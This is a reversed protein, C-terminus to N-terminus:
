ALDLGRVIDPDATDRSQALAHSENSVFRQVCLQFILTFPEMLMRSQGNSFLILTSWFDCRRFTFGERQELAHAPAAVYGHDRGDFVSVIECNEFLAEGCGFIFDVSGEIRCNTFRQRLLRNQRLEDPLFGDYREILDAPLPGLFLTDQTSRLLCRDMEFDDGYVSLAVEQGKEARGQGDLKRAYDGWILISKDAGEGVLRLGPTRIILKERWIGEGLRLVAGPEARDIAAQLNEGPLVFIEAM